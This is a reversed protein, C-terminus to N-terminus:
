ELLYNRRSIGRGDVRTSGPLSPLPSCLPQPPAMIWRQPGKRLARPGPQEGTGPAASFQPLRCQRHQRRPPSRPCIEHARLRTEERASPGAKRVAPPFSQSRPPPGAPLRQASDFWGQQSRPWTRVRREPPSGWRVPRHAPIYPFPSLVPLRLQGLLRRPGQGWAEPASLSAPASCHPGPM